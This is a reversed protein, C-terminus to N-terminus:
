AGPRSARALAAEDITISSRKGLEQVRAVLAQERKEAAARAAADPLVQEFPRGYAKANREYFGKIEAESPAAAQARIREAMGLALVNREAMAARAAVEPRKAYGREIAADQLLREDVERWALRLKVATGAMHGNGSSGAVARIAPYVEQYRLPAGNVNAIAHDMEAPTAALGKLGALFAEDLTVGAKKRLQEVFHARAVGVLQRKAHESVAERKAAYEADTGIKVEVVKAIAFGTRLRAPGALDGPAARFVAEALEPDLQARMSYPADADRPFVTAVIVNKEESLLSAGKALRDRGAQAAEQTEYVLLQLRVFDGTSHFLEKLASEPPSVSAAIETEVFAEAALKRAELTVRAAIAPDKRLGARDSEAALLTEDVLTKLVESAGLQEGQARFQETRQALAARTIALGDVRAVVEDSGPTALAALLLTLHIV